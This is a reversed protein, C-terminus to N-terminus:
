VLKVGLLCLDHGETELEKDKRIDQEETSAVGICWDLGLLLSKRSM